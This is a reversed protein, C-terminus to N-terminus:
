AKAEDRDIAEFENVLDLVAAEILSQRACGMAMAQAELRRVLESPLECSIRSRGGGSV